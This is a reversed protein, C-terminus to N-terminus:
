LWGYLDISSFFTGGIGQNVLNNQRLVNENVLIHTKVAIKM